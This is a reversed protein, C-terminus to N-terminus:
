HVAVYGQAVSVVRLTFGTDHLRVVTFDAQGVVVTVSPSGQYPTESLTPM